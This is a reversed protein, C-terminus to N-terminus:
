GSRSLYGYSELPRFENIGDLYGTERAVQSVREMARGVLVVERECAAAAEAVARIRAVNSAFTTVAVRNPASKILEALCTGFLKVETM